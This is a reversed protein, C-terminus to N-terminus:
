FNFKQIYKTSMVLQGHRVWHHSHVQIGGATRINSSREDIHAERPQDILNTPLYQM